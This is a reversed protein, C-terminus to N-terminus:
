QQLKKSVAAIVENVLRDFQTPQQEGEKKGGKNVNVTVPMIINGINVTVNVVQPRHQHHRCQQSRHQQPQRPQQQNHCKANPLDKNEM